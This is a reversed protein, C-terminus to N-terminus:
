YLTYESIRGLVEAFADSQTESIASWILWIHLSAWAIGSLSWAWIQRLSLKNQTANEIQQAIRTWLFPPAEVKELAELAELPDNFIPTKMNKSNPKSFYSSM